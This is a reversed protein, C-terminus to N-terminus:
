LGEVYITESLIRDKIIPKIADKMVLDVKADFLDELFFLLSMYGDLTEKTLEVLVDIDSTAKQEDRVVSGFVGIEKVGFSKIKKTNSELLQLIEQRSKM